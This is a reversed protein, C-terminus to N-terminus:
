NAERIFFYGAMHEGQEPHNDLSIYVYWTGAHNLSFTVDYEGNFNDTISTALVRSAPCSAGNTCALEVSWSDYGRRQEVGCSTRSILSFQGNAVGGVLEAAIMGDGVFVTQTIDTMTTAYTFQDIGFESRYAAGGSATFGVYAFGDSSGLRTKLDVQEDHKSDTFTPDDIFVSMVLTIHNYLIDLTHWDGDDCSGCASILSWDDSQASGDYVIEFENVMYVDMAVAISSGIGTLGWGPSGANGLANTGQNQIVFAFGDASGLGSLTNTRFRCSVRFSNEVFVKGNKTGEGGGTYWASGRTTRPSWWDVSDYSNLVVTGGSTKADGNMAWGSGFTTVSVVDTLAPVCAGTNTCDAEGIVSLHNIELPLTMAFDANGNEDLVQIDLSLLLHICLRGKNAIEDYLRSFLEGDSASYELLLCVISLLM